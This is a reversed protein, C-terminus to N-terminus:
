HGPYIRSNVAKVGVGHVRIGKRVMLHVVYRNFSDEDGDDGVPEM